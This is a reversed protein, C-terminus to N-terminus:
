GCTASERRFFAGIRNFGINSASWPAAYFVNLQMGLGAGFGDHNHMIQSFGLFVAYFHDYQDFRKVFVM